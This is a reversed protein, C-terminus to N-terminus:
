RRSASAMTQAQAQEAAASIQQAHEREAARVRTVEAELATCKDKAAVLEAQQARLRSKNAEVQVKQADPQGTSGFRTRKLAYQEGTSLHEVSVAEGFRGRGIEKLVRYDREFEDSTLNIM